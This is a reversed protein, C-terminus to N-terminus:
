RWLLKIRKTLQILLELAVFSIFLPFVEKVPCIPQKHGTNVLLRIIDSSIYLNGCAIHLPLGEYGSSIQVSSTDSEILFKAVDYMEKINPHYMLVHIPTYKVEDDSRTLAEQYERVMMQVIDLDINGERMFYYHIPLGAVIISVYSMFKHTNSKTTM